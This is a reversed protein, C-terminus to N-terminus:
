AFARPHLTRGLARGCRHPLICRFGAAWQSSDTGSPLWWVTELGMWLLEPDGRAWCVMTASAAYHLHCGREPPVCLQGCRAKGLGAFLPWAVRAARSETLTRGTTPWQSLTKCTDRACAAPRQQGVCDLRRPANRIRRCVRQHCNPLAMRSILGTGRLQRLEGGGGFLGGGRG